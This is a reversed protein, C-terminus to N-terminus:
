LVRAFRKMFSLLDSRRTGLYYRTKSKKPYIRKLIKGTPGLAFTRPVYKGDLDYKSGLGPDNDQNVRVMVFKRTKVIVKRDHFLKMYKKCTPCWDTYFIVIMGKGSKKSLRLGDAYNHWVIGGQGSGESLPANDASTDQSEHGKYKEKRIKIESDEDLHVPKKDSFHTTGNEDVWQYIEAAAPTLVTALIILSFLIAKEKM